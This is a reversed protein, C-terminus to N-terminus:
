GQNTYVIELWEEKTLRLFHETRKDNLKSMYRDEETHHFKFGCKELCRQSRKNGQIYAAWMATCHLEEFALKELAKIAEPVYGKGWFPVDIFTGIELEEPSYSYSDMDPQRIGIYGILKSNSRLFIAFRTPEKMWPELLFQRTEEPTKMTPLGSPLAVDENTLINYLDQLDGEQWNRLFLHKTTITGM